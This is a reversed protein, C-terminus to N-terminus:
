QDGEESLATMLMQRAGQRALAELGDRVVEEARETVQSKVKQQGTTTTAM